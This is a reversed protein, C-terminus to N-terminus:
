LEREYNVPYKKITHSVFSAFTGKTQAHSSAHTHTCAPTTSLPRPLTGTDMCLGWLLTFVAARKEDWGDAPEGWARALSWVGLGCVCMCVCMCVSGLGRRLDKWMSSYVCVVCCWSPGRARLRASSDNQGAHIYTHTHIPPPLLCAIQTNTCTYKWSTSPTFVGLLLLILITAFLSGEAGQREWELCIPNIFSIGLEQKLGTLRKDEEHWMCLGEMEESLRLAAAVVRPLDQQLKRTLEPIDPRSLPGQPVSTKWFLDEERLTRPWHM